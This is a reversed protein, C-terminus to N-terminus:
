SLSFSWGISMQEDRNTCRLFWVLNLIQYTAERLKLDLGKDRCQRYVQKPSFFCTGVWRFILKAGATRISGWHLRWFDWIRVGWGVQLIPKTVWSRPKKGKWIATEHSKKTVWWKCTRPHDELCASVLLKFGLCDKFIPLPISPIDMGTVNVHSAPTRAFHFLVETWCFM